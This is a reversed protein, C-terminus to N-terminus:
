CSPRWKLGRGVQGATEAAVESRLGASRRPPAEARPRPPRARGCGRSCTGSPTKTRRRAGPWCTTTSPTSRGSWTTPSASGSPPSPTSRPPTPKSARSRADVYDAVPVRTTIRHDQSDRQFWREDYPSEMGHDLFARHRQEIRQRSWVTYYLKAPAWARGLDPRHSPDGAREFAPISVDHVRIHDPHQYLGQDEPYTVIVQPRERRIIEVLRDTAEDLDANAFCDPHSNAEAGKMGSDRYGLMVVEDYGIVRAARALEEGASWRGPTGADRPHGPGPQPHRGGGWGTCCVLVTRVGRAHYMAVTSAGKSAEDDPHAHVTLLCLREDM